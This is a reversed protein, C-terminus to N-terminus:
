SQPHPKKTEHMHDRFEALRRTLALAEDARRQIESASIPQKSRTLKGRARFRVAHAEGKNDVTWIGHVITNRFEGFVKTAKVDEFISEFGPEGLGHDMLALLCDVKSAFQQHQIVIVTRFIDTRLFIAILDTIVSELKIANVVMAGIAQIHDSSLMSDPESAM